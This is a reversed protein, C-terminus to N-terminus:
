VHLRNSIGVLHHSTLHHLNLCVTWVCHVGGAAAPNLPAAVTTVNFVADGKQCSYILSGDAGGRERTLSKYNKTYLVGGRPLPRQSLLVVTGESSSPPTLQWYPQQWVSLASLCIIRRHNSIRRPFPDSLASYDYQKTTRSCHLM